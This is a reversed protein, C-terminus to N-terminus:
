GAAAVAAAGGTLAVLLEAARVGLAPHAASPTLALTAEYHALKRRPVRQGHDVAYGLTAVKDALAIDIADPGGGAIRARLARKRRRYGKVDDDETVAAVLQGVRDGFADDVDDLTWPTDEVVDHLLGALQVAEGCGASALIAGVARAHEVGKGPKARVDAYAAVLAADAARLPTDHTTEFAVV